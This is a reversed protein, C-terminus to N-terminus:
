EAGEWRYAGVCGDLWYERLEERCVGRARHSHIMYGGGIYIGCHSPALRNRFLMIDGPHIECTLKCHDGLSRRMLQYNDHQGYLSYDEVDLGLRMGVAICLGICDLGVGPVRGAHHFPTGIM